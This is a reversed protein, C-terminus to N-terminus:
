RRVKPGLPKAKSVIPTESAGRLRKLKWGNITYTERLYTM